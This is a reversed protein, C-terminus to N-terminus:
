LELPGKQTHAPHEDKSFNFYKKWEVSGTMEWLQLHIHNDKRQDKGRLHPVERLLASRQTQRHETTLSIFLHSPQIYQRPPLSKRLSDFGNAMVVASFDNSFVVEIIDYRYVCGKEAALRVHTDPFIRELTAQPHPSTVVVVTNLEQSLRILAQLVESPLHILKKFKKM